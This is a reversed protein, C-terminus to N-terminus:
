FKIRIGLNALWSSGKSDGSTKSLELYTSCKKSLTATWGLAYELWSRKLSQETTVPALGDSAATVSPSACFERVLSTKVYFSNNNAHHGLAFGIRGTLTTAADNHIQTTDSATYDANTVRGVAVEAQPELYWHNNLQKRYGYEASLSSGWQSYSGNVKTNATNNLYSDYSSRLRGVKAIIDLYHGKDGLWTQYAGVTLSSASGSGREFSLDGNLYGVNWGSFWVGGDAAHRTDWGWQFATYQQSVGSTTQNGRYVRGWEGASELHSRLDGLRKSLSNAERQWVGLSGAAISAANSTTQSAGNVALSTISWTQGNDSVALVPTYRYAGYETNQATFSTRNDPVSAFVATGRVTQGSIFGPDYNVKVTNQSAGSQIIIKDSTGAALNTNILFSATGNLSGLTLKRGATAGSALQVRAQDAALSAVAYDGSDGSLALTGNTISTSGTLQAAAELELLGGSTVTTDSAAGQSAVHQRGGNNVTTLAASGGSYVTQTGGSNVTTASVYGSVNQNCANITTFYALGGPKVDQIGDHDITTHTAIGGSLIQQLGGQIATYSASGGVTQLGNTLITTSVAFGGHQISQVAGGSVIAGIVSGGNLIIQSGGSSVVPVSASGGDDIVQGGGSSVVAGNVIGGNAVTQIGGSAVQTNVVTGGSAVTQSGGSSVTTRVASGGFNVSQTGGAQVVTQNAVGGSSVSQTGGSSITAGTALGGSSITQLGGSQM